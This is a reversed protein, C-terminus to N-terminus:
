KTSLFRNLVGLVGLAPNRKIRIITSVVESAIEAVKVVDSKKKKSVVKSEVRSM